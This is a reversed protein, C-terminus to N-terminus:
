SPIIIEFTAGCETNYAKINGKLQNSILFHALHLGLGLGNQSKQKESFLHPLKNQAIGGGNDEIKIGIYNEAMFSSITIKRDDSKSKSLVDVANQLIILVVQGVINPYSHLTINADCKNHISICHTDLLPKLMAIIKEIKKIMSFYKLTCDMRYFDHFSTITEDMFTVTEELATVSQAIKERALRKKKLLSELYSVITSIRYLPIKWQHIIAGLQRGISLFRAHSVLLKEAKYKRRLNIHHAMYYITITVVISEVIFGLVGASQTWINETLKGFIAQFYILIGSLGFSHGILYFYAFDLKKYVMYLLLGELYLFLLFALLPAQQSIMQMTTDAFLYASAFILALFYKM